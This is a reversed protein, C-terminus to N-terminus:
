VMNKQIIRSLEEKLNDNNSAVNIGYGLIKGQYSYFKPFFMEALEKGISYERNELETEIWHRTAGLIIDALQLINSHNCRAYYLTKDFSLDCLKGCYYEIESSNHGRNYAYYYEKDFPNPESGEPWDLIVQTYEIKRQKVHLGLRMLANSFMFSSLNEKIDKQQKQDAYKNEICSVFIKIDYKLVEKILLRRWEDFDAVLYKFDEEKGFRKYKDKLSKLNYKVPMDKGTYRSKLEQMFESLLIEDKRSIFIGGFLFIPRKSNGIKKHMSTDDAYWKYMM